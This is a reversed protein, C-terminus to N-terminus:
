EQSVMSGAHLIAPPTNLLSSVENPGGGIERDTELPTEPIPLLM